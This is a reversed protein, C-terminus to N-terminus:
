GPLFPAGLNNWGAKQRGAMGIEKRIRAGWGSRAKQERRRKTNTQQVNMMLQIINERGRFRRQDKGNSLEYIM